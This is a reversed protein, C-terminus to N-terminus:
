HTSLGKSYATPTLGYHQRFASSFHQVSSFHLAAAIQSVNMDGRRLLEKSAELRMRRIYAAPSQRLKKQFLLSLYASSVGCQRALEKVTLKERDHAAIHRLAHEVIQNEGWVTSAPAVPRSEAEAGATRILDILLLQLLSFIRETAFPAATEQERLIEGLLRASDQGAPLVRRLIGEPLPLSTAFSLTVFNVVIEPDAYQMHWQDPALIMMQNQTLLHDEGAVINHMSGRDVYILEYPQHQEGRFLFGKEKEQYFLTYIRTVLLAPELLGPKSCGDWAATERVAGGTELRVTCHDGVPTVSFAVGARLQVAKDLYFTEVEGDDRLVRLLAMGQDYDLRVPAQYRYFDQGSDRRITQTDPQGEFPATEPLITGYSAFNLANLNQIM